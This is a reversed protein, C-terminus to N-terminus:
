KRKATQDFGNQHLILKTVAGKDDKVFTVQADVVKLFFDGESEPYLEFKPQNTAQVYLQDGEKTVSMVFTPIIQYDGVYTELIKSDVKVEKRIKRPTLKQLRFKPEILHRGIDDINAATNTLVVVGVGHEKDFGIFSHYGGTEGNHFTFRCDFKDVKHWGLGLDTNAFVKERYTKQQLEMADSLPSKTQGMNAKVFKLMDDVTSRIAGAGALTPLDWNKTQSLQANHGHALRRQADPTLTIMTSTMGLPECIRKKVLTEYDQGARLALIHGLLGVGLNSYEYKEGIKRLLKVNPLFAYMQEVTYDAYPNLGDKPTLNDPLRPLASTHTALDELTIEKGDRTPLKVSKPLYKSAPDNLAVEGRKVMDALLLSTFVKSVSGIEFVAENASVKSQQPLLEGASVIRTGDADIVGVVIGTVQKDVQVRQDLIAQIDKASRTMPETQAFLSGSSTFLVVALAAIMRRIPM